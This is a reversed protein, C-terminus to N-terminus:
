DLFLRTLLLGTGALTIGLSGLQYVFRPYWVRNFFPRLMFWALAVIGLQGIEVGLNFGFLGKLLNAEALALESLANAFGLGHLLGFGFIVALRWRPPPQAPNRTLNEIGIVVISAAILPEILTAPVLFMKLAGFALTM